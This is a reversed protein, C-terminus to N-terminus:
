SGEQKKNEKIVKTLSQRIYRRKKKSVLTVNFREKQTHGRKNKILLVLSKFVIYNNFKFGILKDKEFEVIHEKNSFRDSMLLEKNTVIVMHGDSDYEFYKSIYHVIFFLAGFIVAIIVLVIFPDTSISSFTKFMVASFIAM